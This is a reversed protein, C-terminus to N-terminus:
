RDADLCGPRSSPRPGTSWGASGPALSRQWLWRLIRIPFHLSSFPHLLFHQSIDKSRSSPRREGNAASSSSPRLSGNGPGTTMIRTTRRCRTRPSALGNALGSLPWLGDPIRSLESDRDRQIDIMQHVFLGRDTAELALYAISAGLDHEADINLQVCRGFSPSTSGIALVPVAKEWPQNWEIFRACLRKFEM